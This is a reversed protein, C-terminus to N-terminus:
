GGNVPHQFCFSSNPWPCTWAVLVHNISSNSILFGIPPRAMDPCGEKTTGVSIDSLAPSGVMAMVERPGLGLHRPSPSRHPPAWNGMFLLCSELSIFLRTAETHSPLVLTPPLLHSHSVSVALFPSVNLTICPSHFPLGFLHQLSFSHSLSLGLSILQSLFPCLSSLLLSFSLLICWHSCSSFSEWQFPAPPCPLPDALPQHMQGPCESRIEATAYKPIMSDTTLEPHLICGHTYADMPLSDLLERYQLVRAHQPSGAEPMLSVVHEALCLRPQVLPMLGSEAVQGQNLFAM